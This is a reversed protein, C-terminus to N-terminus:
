LSGIYKCYVDDGHIGCDTEILGTGEKALNIVTGGAPTMIGASSVASNNIFVIENCSAAIIAM